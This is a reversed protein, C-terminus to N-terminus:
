AEVDGSHAVTLATAIPLELTADHLATPALFRVVDDLERTRPLPPLSDLFVRGYGKASLRPDCLM